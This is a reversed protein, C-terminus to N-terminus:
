VDSFATDQLMRPLFVALVDDGAPADKVRVDSLVNSTQFTKGIVGDLCVHRSRSNFWSVCGASFAYACLIHDSLVPDPDLLSTEEMRTTLEENWLEISGYGKPIQGIYRMEKCPDKLNELKLSEGNFREWLMQIYPTGIKSPDWIPETVFDVVAQNFIDVLSPCDDYQDDLLRLTEVKALYVAQEFNTADSQQNYEKLDNLGQIIQRILIDRTLFYTTETASVVNLRFQQNREYAHIYKDDAALEHAKSSCAAADFTKQMDLTLERGVSNPPITNANACVSCDAIPGITYHMTELSWSSGSRTVKAPGKLKEAAYGTDFHLQWPFHAFVVFESEPNIFCPRNENLQECGYTQYVAAPYCLEVREDAQKKLIEGAWCYKQTDAVISTPPLMTEISDYRQWCEENNFLDCPVVHEDRTARRGGPLTPNIRKKNEGDGIEFQPICNYETVGTGGGGDQGGATQSGQTYCKVYNVLSKRLSDRCMNAPNMIWTAFSAKTIQDIFDEADYRSELTCERWPRRRDNLRADQVTLTSSKSITVGEMSPGLGVDAAVSNEQARSEGGMLALVVLM